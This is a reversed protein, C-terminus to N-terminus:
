WLYKTPLPLSTKAPKVAQKEVQKKKPPICVMKDVHGFSNVFEITDPPPISAENLSTLWTNVREMRMGTSGFAGHSSAMEDVDVELPYEYHARFGAGLGRRLVDEQGKLVPLWDEAKTWTERWSPPLSTKLRPLIKTGPKVGKAAKSAFSLGANNRLDQPTKLFCNPVLPPFGEVKIASRFDATQQATIEQRVPFNMSSYRRMKDVMPLPTITGCRIHSTYCTPSGSSKSGNQARSSSSSKNGSTACRIFSPWLVAHAIRTAMWRDQEHHAAENAAAHALQKSNGTRAPKSSAPAVVPVPVIYHNNHCGNNNNNNNFFSM